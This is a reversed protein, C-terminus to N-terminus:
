ADLFKIDTIANENIDLFGKKGSEEMVVNKGKLINMGMIAVRFLYHTYCRNTALGFGCQLVVNATKVVSVGALLNLARWRSTLMAVNVAEIKFRFRDCTGFYM